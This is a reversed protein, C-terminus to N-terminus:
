MNRCPLAMMLSRSPEKQTVEVDTHYSALRFVISYYLVYLCPFHYHLIHIFYTRVGGDQVIINKYM